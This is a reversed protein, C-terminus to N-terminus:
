VLFVDKPIDITGLQDWISPEYVVKSHEVIVALILWM